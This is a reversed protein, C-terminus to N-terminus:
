PAMMVRALCQSWPTAKPLRACISVGVQFAVWNLGSRGSRVAELVEGVTTCCGGAPRVESPVRPIGSFKM